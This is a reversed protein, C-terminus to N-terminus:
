EKLDLIEQLDKIFELIAQMQYKSAEDEHLKGIEYMGIYYDLTNQIVSIPIFKNKLDEMTATSWIEREELEKYGKILSEIAQVEKDFGLENHKCLEIFWELLRINKEM